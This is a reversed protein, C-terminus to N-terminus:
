MGESSYLPLKLGVGHEQRESSVGSCPGLRFHGDRSDDVHHDFIVPAPAENVGFHVGEMGLREAVPDEVIVPVGLNMAVAEAPNAGSTFAGKNSEDVDGPVTAHM